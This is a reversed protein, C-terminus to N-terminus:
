PHILNERKLLYLNLQEGDKQFAEHYTFGLQQLLKISPSNKVKCIAALTLKPKQTFLHWLYSISAEKAYGQRQFTPLLAFGFDPYDLHDRKLFSLIGIPSAKDLTEIVKYEVANNAKIDRIYSKAQAENRVGRDGINELWGESNLLALIFPYDADCLPRIHLRKTKIPYIELFLVPVAHM